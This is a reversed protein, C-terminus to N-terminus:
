AERHRTTGMRWRSARRQPAPYRGDVDGERRAWRGSGVAVRLLPLRAPLAYLWPTRRVSHFGKPLGSVLARPESVPDRRPDPV